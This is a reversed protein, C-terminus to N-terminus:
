VPLERYGSTKSVLIDKVQPGILSTGLTGGCVRLCKHMRPLVTSQSSDHQVSPFLLKSQLQIFYSFNEIQDFPFLTYPFSFIQQKSALNMPSMKVQNNHCSVSLRHIDFGLVSSNVHQLPQCICEDEGEHFLVFCSQPYLFNLLSWVWNRKVSMTTFDSAFILCQFIVSKLFRPYTLFHQCPRLVICEGRKESCKLKHRGSKELRILLTSYPTYNIYISDMICISGVQKSSLFKTRKHKLFM